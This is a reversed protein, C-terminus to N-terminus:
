HISIKSFRNTQGDEFCFGYATKSNTEFLQKSFNTKFSAKLIPRFSYLNTEIFFPKISSVNNFESVSFNRLVRQVTM